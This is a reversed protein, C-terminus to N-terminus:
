LFYSLGINTSFLITNEFGPLRPRPNAAYLRSKRIPKALWAWDAALSPSLAGRTDNTGEFGKDDPAFQRMFSGSEPWGAASGKLQPGNKIRKLKHCGQDADDDGGVVPGAQHPL